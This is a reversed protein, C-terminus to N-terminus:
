GVPIFLLYLKSCGMFPFVADAHFVSINKKLFKKRMENLAIATFTAVSIDLIIYATNYLVTNKTINIFDPTSFFFKFNEFGVFESGFIGLAPRYKLFAISLGLMPLYNNILLFVITPVMMLYLMKHKKM